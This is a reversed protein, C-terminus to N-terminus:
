SIRSIAKGLTMLRDSNFAHFVKEPSIDISSNMVNTDFPQIGVWNLPLTTLSTLLLGFSTMFPLQFIKIKLVDAMKM